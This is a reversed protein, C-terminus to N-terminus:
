IVLAAEFIKRDEIGCYLEMEQMGALQNAIWLGLGYGEGHLPKSHYFVNKLDSVQPNIDKRIKNKIVIAFTTDESQQMSLNKQICIEIATEEPSYKIANDLLNGIIINLKEADAFLDYSEDVPHYSIKFQLGKTIAKSKYKTILESIIDSLNTESKSFTILGSRLESLLLFDNVM